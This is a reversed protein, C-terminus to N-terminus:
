FWQAIAGFCCEFRRGIFRLDSARSIAGGRWGLSSIGCHLGVEDSVYLTWMDGTTVCGFYMVNKCVTMIWRRCSATIESLLAINWGTDTRQRDTLSSMYFGSFIKGSIYKNLPFFQNFNRFWGCRSRSRPVNQLIGWCRLIRFIEVIQSM